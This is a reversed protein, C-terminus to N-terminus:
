KGPRVRIDKSEIELTIDRNKLFTIFLRGIFPEFDWGVKENILDMGTVSKEAAPLGLTVVSFILQICFLLEPERQYKELSEIANKKSSFDIYKILTKRILHREGLVVSFIGSVNGFATQAISKSLGKANSSAINNFSISSWGRTLIMNSVVDIIHERNEAAAVARASDVKHKAMTYEQLSNLM